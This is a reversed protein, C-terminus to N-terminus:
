FCAMKSKSASKKLLEELMRFSLNLPGPGTNSYKWLFPGDCKETCLFIAKKRENRGNRVGPHCFYGRGREYKAGNTNRLKHCTDTPPNLPCSGYSHGKKLIKLWNKIFFLSYKSDQFYSIMSNQNQHSLIKM